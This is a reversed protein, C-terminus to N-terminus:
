GGGNADTAIQVVPVEQDMYEGGQQYTKSTKKV